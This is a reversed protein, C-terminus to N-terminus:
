CPSPIRDDEYEFLRWYSEAPFGPHRFRDYEVAGSNRFIAPIERLERKVSRSRITPNQQRGHDLANPEIRHCRIPHRGEAIHWDPYYLSNQLYISSVDSSRSEISKRRKQKQM